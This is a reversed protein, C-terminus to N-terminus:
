QTRDMFANWAGADREARERCIRCSLEAPWLSLKGGNPVLIWTKGTADPPSLRAVSGAWAPLESCPGLADEDVRQTPAPQWMVPSSCKPCPIQRAIEIGERRAASEAIERERMEYFYVDHEATCQACLARKGRGGCAHCKNGIAVGGYKAGDHGAGMCETCVTWDYRHEHPKQELADSM